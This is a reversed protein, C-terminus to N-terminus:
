KAPMAARLVPYFQTFVFDTDASAAHCSNCSAAPFAEATKNYPEPKHGFSYYVWGGPEDAFRVTDKITLELGSFEGEFYGNGSVEFCAGTAPDCDDGARVTTLEKAIQTGNAWEGTKEFHNFASPEVYVNHFEPFPAEGGNLANPTLPSGVYVWRRWEHNKPMSVSGNSNFSARNISGSTSSAAASSMEPTDAKQASSESTCASLGLSLGLALLSTKLITKTNTSM